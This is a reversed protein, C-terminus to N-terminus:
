CMTGHRHTKESSVLGEDLGNGRVTNRNCRDHLWKDCLCNLLLCAKLKRGWLGSGCLYSVDWAFRCHRCYLLKRDHAILILQIDATYMWRNSDIYRYRCKKSTDSPCPCATQMSKATSTKKIKSQNQLLYVTMQFLGPCEKCSERCKRRGEWCVWWYFCCDRLIDFIVECNHPRQDKEDHFVNSIWFMGSGIHSMFPPSKSSFWALDKLRLDRIRKLSPCLEWEARRVRHDSGSAGSWYDALGM